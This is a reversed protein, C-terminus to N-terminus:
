EGDSIIDHCFVVKLQGAGENEKKPSAQPDYGLRLKLYAGLLPPSIGSNLAEDEFAASIQGTENRYQQALQMYQETGIGLYRCFGAVNPFRVGEGDKRASKTRRGSPQRDSADNRRVATKVAAAGGGTGNDYGTNGCPKRNDNSDDSDGEAERAHGVNTIGCGYRCEMIYQEALLLLESGIFHQAQPNEGAVGSLIKDKMWTVVEKQRYRNSEIYFFLAVPHCGM